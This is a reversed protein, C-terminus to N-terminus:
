NKMLTQLEDTNEFADVFEMVDSASDHQRDFVKYLFHTSPVPCDGLFDHHCQMLDFASLVFGGKRDEECNRVAIAYRQLSHERNRLDALTANEVGKVAFANLIGKLCVEQAEIQKAGLRSNM